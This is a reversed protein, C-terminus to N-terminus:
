FPIDDTPKPSAPKPASLPPLPTVSDDVQVKFLKMPHQKGVDRTGTFAVIVKNGQKLGAKELKLVADSNGGSSISIDEIVGAENKTRITYVTEKGYRGNREERKVFLGGVRDGIADFKKFKAGLAAREEETLEVDRFAM